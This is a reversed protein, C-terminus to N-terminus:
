AAKAAVKFDIPVSLVPVHASRIVPEACTGLLARAMAGMKRIGLVILDAESEDAIRVLTEAANGEALICEVNVERRTGEAKFEAFKEHAQKLAEAHQEDFLEHVEPTEYAM